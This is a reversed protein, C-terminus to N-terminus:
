SPLYEFKKISGAFVAEDSNFPTQIAIDFSLQWNEVLVFIRIFSPILGM